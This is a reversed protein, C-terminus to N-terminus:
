DTQFYYTGKILVDKLGAGDIIETFGDSIIGTKVETKKFYLSSDDQKEKVYVFYKHGSKIVAEAPLSLAKENGTIVEVQFYMGDVFIERLRDEPKAICKISKSKNDIAKGISIVTANYINGPNEPSYIRLSQGKEIKSIDEQYVNFFLQLDSNDIVQMLLTQSDVFEGINCNLSSVYGNIPSLLQLYSSLKGAELKDIDVNLIEFEAKLAKIRATLVNYESEIELFKKQSSINEKYLTKVRNYDAETAKLRALSKLYEQQMNIYEKSQVTCLVKGKEVYTGPMVPIAKIVGAVFSYVDAKSEPSATIIGNTKIVRVFDYMEPHGLQMKETKFQNSGIKILNDPKTQENEDVSTGSCGTFTLTVVSLVLILLSNYIKM